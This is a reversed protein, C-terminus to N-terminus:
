RVRDDQCFRDLLQIGQELMRDWTDAKSYQLAQDRFVSWERFLAAAPDEQRFFAGLASEFARGFLMAARTDKERWGDLYRHRYRRPCALYQSIQTYSYIM